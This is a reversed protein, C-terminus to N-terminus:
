GKFYTTECDTENKRTHFHLGKTSSMSPPFPQHWIRIGLNRWYMKIKGKKYCTNGLGQSAPTGQDYFVRSLTLTLLAYINGLLHRIHDGAYSIAPVHLHTDMSCQMIRTLRPASRRVQVWRDKGSAVSIHGQGWTWHHSPDRTLGLKRHLLLWMHVTESIPCDGAGWEEQQLFLVYGQGRRHTPRQWEKTSLLGLYTTHFM